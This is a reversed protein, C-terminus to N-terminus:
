APLIELELQRQVRRRFAMIRTLSVFLACMRRRRRVQIQYERMTKYVMFGPEAALLVMSLVYLVPRARDPFLLSTLSVVALSGFTLAFHNVAYAYTPRYRLWSSLRLHTARAVVYGLFAAVSVYTTKPHTQFPTTDLSQFKLVLFNLLVSTLFTLVSNADDNPNHCNFIFWSYFAM